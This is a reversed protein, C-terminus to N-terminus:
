YTTLNTSFFSNPYAPYALYAQYAPYAPYTLYALYAPYTLYAPYAPYALYQIETRRLLEQSFHNQTSQASGTDLILYRSDFV